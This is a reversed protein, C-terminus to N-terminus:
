GPLMGAHPHSGSEASFGANWKPKATGAERGAPRSWGPSRDITAGAPKQDFALREDIKEGDPRKRCGNGQL